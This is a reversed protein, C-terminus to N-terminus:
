FTYEFHNIEKAYLSGVVQVAHESYHEQYDRRVKKKGQDAGKKMHPMWGDWEVSTKKLAEALGADLDEFRVVHDMAVQDNITYMDWNQHNLPTIRPLPEGELSDVYADFSPKDALRKTRWFYDSLTKDWPNRVICFKFYGRWEDPFAAAVASAPAHAPSVGLAASYKAKMSKSVLSWFSKRGIMVSLYDSASMQRLAEKVVRRPPYIKLKIGDTIASFQLDDPGLFRSLSSVVSSGATKRCHVFIFRHKHSVIM